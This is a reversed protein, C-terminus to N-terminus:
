FIMYEYSFQWVFPDAEGFFRINLVDDPANDSTGVIQPQISLNYGDSTFVDTQNWSFSSGNWLVHVFILKCVSVSSSQSQVKGHATIRLFASGRNGQVMKTHDFLRVTINTSAPVRVSKIKRRNLGIIGDSNSIYQEVFGDMGGLFAFLESNTSSGVKFVAVKSDITVFDNEVIISSYDADQFKINLYNDAFTLTTKGNSSVIKNDSNIVLDPYLSTNPNIKAVLNNNVDYEWLDNIFTGIQAFTIQTTGLIIPSVNVAYVFNAETGGERVRYTAALLKSSTNSDDARRLVWSSTPSGVDEVVYCGNNVRNAGVENKVLIRDGVQLTVGDIAPLGVGNADTLVQNGGSVIYPPLATTTSVRVSHKWSLGQAISDVYDKTAAHLGNIPPGVLSLYGTMTDGSKNVKSNIQTQANASLGSIFLLESTTVSSSVLRKLNDFVAVREATASNIYLNSTAQGISINNSGTTGINIANSAIINVNSSGNTSVTNGVISLVTATITTNRDNRGISINGNNFTTGINLTGGDFIATSDHRVEVTSGTFDIRKSSGNNVLFKSSNIIFGTITNLNYIFSNASATFSGTTIDIAVNHNINLITPNLRIRKNADTLYFEVENSVRFLTNFSTTIQVYNDANIAINSTHYINISSPSIDILSGGINNLRINNTTIKLWTENSAISGGNTSVVFSENGLTGFNVRIKDVDWSSLSSGSVVRICSTNNDIALLGDVITTTNSAVPIYGATLGSGNVSIGEADQWTGDDRLFQGTPVDKRIFSIDVKGNNDISLYGNPQNRHTQINLYSDNFDSLLPRLINATIYRNGNSIISTNIDSLLQSKDKQSM